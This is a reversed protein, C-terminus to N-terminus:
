ALEPLFAIKAIQIPLMINPHVYIGDYPSGLVIPDSGEKDIPCPIRQNRKKKRNVACRRSLLRLNDDPM